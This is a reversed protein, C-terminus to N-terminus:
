KLHSPFPKFGNFIDRIYDFIRTRFENDDYILTDLLLDPGAAKGKSLRLLVPAQSNNGNIDALGLEM